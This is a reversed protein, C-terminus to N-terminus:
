QPRLPLAQLAELPSAPAPAAAVLGPWGRFVGGGVLVSVGFALNGPAQSRFTTSLQLPVPLSPPVARVMSAQEAGAAHQAVSSAPILHRAAAWGPARVARTVGARAPAGSPSLAQSRLCAGSRQPQAAGALPAPARILLARARSAAPATQQHNTAPGPPAPRQAGQQLQHSASV